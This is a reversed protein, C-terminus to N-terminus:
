FPIDDDYFDGGGQDPQQYQQGTINEQKPLLKDKITEMKADLRKAPKNEFIESATQKTDPNFFGAIVMKSGISNDQKRYEERQLIVGIKQNILGPYIPVQKDIEKGSEFDYIKAVGDQAPADKVKMCTMGAMLLNFGFATSGDAKKTYLTLHGADAGTVDKFTFEIGITGSKAIIEYAQTFVGTYAGTETIRLDSDGKLAFEKNLQYNLAM